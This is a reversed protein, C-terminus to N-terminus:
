DLKMKKILYIVLEPMFLKNILLVSQKKMEKEEKLM